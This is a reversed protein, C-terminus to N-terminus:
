WRDPAFRLDGALVAEATHRLRRGSLYAYARLRLYADPLGGHLQVSVVRVAQNIMAWQTDLPGLLLDDPGGPEGLGSVVMLEAAAEAFVKADAVESGTLPGPRTRYLELVGVTIDAVILPFAFLAVVGLPSLAADLRPWRHATSPWSVDAVQVPDGDTLADIAPGVGLITQLESTHESTADTACVTEGFGLDGVVSLSVGSAAVVDVAAQCVHCLRIPPGEGGAAEAIAAAIRARRVHDM